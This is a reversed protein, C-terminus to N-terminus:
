KITAKGTITIKGTMTSGGTGGAGVFKYAGIGWGVGGAWAVGDFDTTFNASQDSGTSTAPSGSQLHLNSSSVFLPDANPNTPNADYGLVRWQALTKTAGELQYYAGSFTTGSAINRNEVLTTFANEDHYYMFLCNMTANNEVTYTKATGTGQHGSVTMFNCGSGSAAYASNNYAKITGSRMATTILANDPWDTPCFFINEYIQAEANFGFGNMFVASTANEGYGDNFTNKYIRIGHIYGGGETDTPRLFVGNHHWDGQSPDDWNSYQGFTCGTVIVDDLTSDNGRAAVDIGWNVHAFTNNTFTYRASGVSYDCDIGVYGEDISCNDVVFDTFTSNEGYNSIGGGVGSGKILTGAPRVFINRMTLNKITLGTANKGAVGASSNQFTLIQGNDTCEIIGQRGNTIDGNVTIWNQSFVKIAGTSDGWTAKTFIAGADFLITIRNNTDTGSGQVTLIDNITGVVHLTDGVSIKGAGSGWNGSTSAESVSWPNGITGNHSGSGSQTFYLDEAFATCILLLFIFIHRIM